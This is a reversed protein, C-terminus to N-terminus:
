TEHIVEYSVSVYNSTANQNPSLRVYLDSYSYTGLSYDRVDYFHTITKLVGFNWSNVTLQTVGNPIYSRAIKLEISSSNSIVPLILCWARWIDGYLYDNGSEYYAYYKMPCPTGFDVSEVEDVPVSRYKAQFGRGTATYDSNFYINVHPSKFPFQSTVNYWPRIYTSGTGDYIELMDAVDFDFDTFVVEILDNSQRPRIYWYCYMGNFYSLPYGPSSLYQYHRDAYLNKYPCSYQQSFRLQFESNTSNSGSNFVILMDGGTSYVHPFYDGHTMSALLRSNTTPGDFLRLYDGQGISFSNVDYMYLTYNPYHNYIHWTYQLYHKGHIPYSIYGIGENIEIYQNATNDTIMPLSKYALHFGKRVVSGDTIFRIHMKNGASYVPPAYTGTLTAVLSSSSTPGNYVYVKDCCSELDIEVTLLEIYFNVDAEISWSCDINNLYDNPYRPSILYSYSTETVRLTTHNHCESVTANADYSHTSTVATTTDEKASSGTTPSNSFMATSTTSPNTVDNVSEFTTSVPLPIASSAFAKYSATTSYATSSFTTSTMTAQNTSIAPNYIATVAASFGRNGVSCDSTLRLFMVNQSSSYSVDSADSYEGAIEAIIHGRSSAGDHLTLRDCCEEISYDTFTISVVSGSLVQIIWTFFANIPYLSPYNPSSFEAVLEGSVSESLDIYIHAQNASKATLNFRAKSFLLQYAMQRQPRLNVNSEATQYGSTMGSLNKPIYVAADHGKEQARELIRRADQSTTKKGHYTIGENEMNFSFLEINDPLYVHFGVKETRDGRNTVSLTLSQESEGKPSVDNSHIAKEYIGDEFLGVVYVNKSEVSVANCGALLGLLLFMVQM